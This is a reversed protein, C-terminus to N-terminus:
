TFPVMPKYTSRTTVRLEVLATHIPRLLLFHHTYTIRVNVLQDMVELYLDKEVHVSSVELQIRVSKIMQVTTSILILVNM